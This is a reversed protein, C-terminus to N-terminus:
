SRIDYTQFERLFFISVILHCMLRILILTNIFHNNKRVNKDNKLNQYPSHPIIQYWISEWLKSTNNLEEMALFLDQILKRGKYFLFCFKVNTLKRRRGLNIGARWPELDFAHTRTHVHTYIEDYKWTYVCWILWNQITSAPIALVYWM